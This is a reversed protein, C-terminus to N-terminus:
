HRFGYARLCSPGCAHSVAVSGDIHRGRVAYCGVRRTRPRKSSLRQVHPQHYAMPERFASVWYFYVASTFGLLSLGACLISRIFCSYCICTNSRHRTGEHQQAKLNRHKHSSSEPMISLGDLLFFRRGAM